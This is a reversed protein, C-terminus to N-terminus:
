VPTEACVAIEDTGSKLAWKERGILEEVGSLFQFDALTTTGANM